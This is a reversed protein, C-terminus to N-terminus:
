APQVEPRNRLDFLSTVILDLVTQDIQNLLVWRWRLVGRRGSKSHTSDIFHVRMRLQDGARVPHPWKLQEIGPSGMSESGALVHEVVLRMAIACTHFGSAIVGGWLSDAAARRDIHFPQPDYRRAFDLIEEQLVHYAGFELQDGSKIQAFKM